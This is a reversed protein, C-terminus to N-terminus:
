PVSSSICSRTLDFIHPCVSAHAIRVNGKSQAQGIISAKMPGSITVASGVDHHAVCVRWVIQGETFGDVRQVSAVDGPAVLDVGEEVGVAGEVVQDHTCGAVALEVLSVPQQHILHAAVQGVREGKAATELSRHGLM